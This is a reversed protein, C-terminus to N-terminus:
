YASDQMRVESFMVKTSTPRYGVATVLMLPSVSLDQHGAQQYSLRLKM